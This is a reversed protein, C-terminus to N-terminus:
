STRPAAHRAECGTSRKPNLVTWIQSAFSGTGRSPDCARQADVDGAKLDKLVYLSRRFVLSKRGRTAGYRVRCSFALRARGSSRLHLEGAFRPVVGGDARRLTPAERHRCAGLAIAGYRRHGHYKPCAVECGFHACALITLINTDEPSAPHTSACSCCSAKAGRAGRAGVPSNKGAGRGTSIIMLKGTASRILPIEFSAIQLPVRL